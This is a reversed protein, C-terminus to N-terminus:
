RSGLDLALRNVVECYEEVANPKFILDGVGIALAQARMEDTIFGSAIAIPLDPRIQRVARAVDLGTMSPMNYDTLVLDFDMPDARLAALAEQPREFGTIAYGRRELLRKVLFTLSEDDDIYLVRRARGEFTPPRAKHTEPLAAHAQAAPFYLTFTSGEGPM